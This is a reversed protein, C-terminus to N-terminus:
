IEQGAARALEDPVDFFGQRGKWQVPTPFRRPSRLVFAFRPKGDDGVIRYDGWFLQWDKRRKAIEETPVCDAIEVTGIIAGFPLERWRVGFAALHHGYHHTIARDQHKAAHIAIRGRVRTPWGRTEDPKVQVGLDDTEFIVSAWPQWLSLAKM